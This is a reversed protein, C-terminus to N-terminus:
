ILCVGISVVVVSLLGRSPGCPCVQPSSVICSISYIYLKYIAHTFLYIYVIVSYIIDATHYADLLSM